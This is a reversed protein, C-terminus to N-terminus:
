AVSGLVPVQTWTPGVRESIRLQARALVGPRDSLPVFEGLEIVQDDHKIHCARNTERVVVVEYLRGGAEVFPPVGADDKTNMVKWGTQNTKASFVGFVFHHKSVHCSTRDETVEPFTVDDDPKGQSGPNVSQSVPRLLREVRCIVPLLGGM